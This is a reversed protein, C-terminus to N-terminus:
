QGTPVNSPEAGSSIGKDTRLTAVTHQLGFTLNVSDEVKTVTYVVGTTEDEVTDHRTLGDPMNDCRLAYGSTEDVNSKIRSGTPRSICARVGTALVVPADGPGDYGVAAPDRDSQPRVGRVTITTTALPIM